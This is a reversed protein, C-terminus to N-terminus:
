IGEVRMNYIEIDDEDMGLEIDAIEKRAESLELNMGEYIIDSITSALCHAMKSLPLLVNPHFSSSPLSASRSSMKKMYIKTSLAEAMEYLEVAEKLKKYRLMQMASLKMKNVKDKEKQTHSVQGSCDNYLVM